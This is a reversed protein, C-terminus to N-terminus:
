FVWHSVIVGLSADGEVALVVWKSVILKPRIDVLGLGGQVRLLTFVDCAVLCLGEGGGGIVGFFM